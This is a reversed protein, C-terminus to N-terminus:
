FERYPDLTGASGRKDEHFTKQHDAIARDAEARTTVDEGGLPRTIDENCADCIIVYIKKVSYGNM